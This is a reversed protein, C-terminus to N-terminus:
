IHPHPTPDPPREEPLSLRENWRVVAQADTMAVPGTCGCKGCRVAGFVVAVQTSGCFPCPKLEM